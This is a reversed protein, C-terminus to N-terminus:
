KILLNVLIDAVILLAAMLIVVSRIRRFDRVVHAREWEANRLLAASPAGEARLAGTRSVAGRAAAATGTRRSTTTVPRTEGASAPRAEPAPAPRAPQTARRAATRSRSRQKRAM